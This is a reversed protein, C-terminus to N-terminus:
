PADKIRTGLWYAIQPVIANGLGRLRDVRKSVGNAVRGVDPEVVWGPHHWETREYLGADATSGDPRSAVRRPENGVAGHRPHGELRPGNAHALEAGTRELVTREAFQGFREEKGGCRSGRTDEVAAAGGEGGQGAAVRVWWKSMGTPYAVIWLRQRLHPAGVDHASIVDWEADYGIESLSGLVRDFGRILLNPVNEVIVYRPRLEGVIRRMEWWLSSREGDLGAQKGATSIDQCPFGGCIVDVPELNHLGCDRVDAFRTADPWHKALVKRCWEDLEVQWVIDYGAWSLGLDFGGIGAFLSGVRM